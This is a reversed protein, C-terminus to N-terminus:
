RATQRLVIVLAPSGDHVIADSSNTVSSQVPGPQADRHLERRNRRLREQHSRVIATRVLPRQMPYPDIRKLDADTLHRVGFVGRERLHCPM